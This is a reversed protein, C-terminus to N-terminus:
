LKSTMRVQLLIPSFGSGWFGRSVVQLIHISLIWLFPQISEKPWFEKWRVLSLASQESFNIWYFGEPFAVHVIWNCDLNFKFENLDVIHMGKHNILIEFEPQDKLGWAFKLASKLTTGTVESFRDSCFRFTAYLNYCFSQRFLTNSQFQGKQVDKWGRNPEAQTQSMVCNLWCTNICECSSRHPKHRQLEPLTSLDQCPM